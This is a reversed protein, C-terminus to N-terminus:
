TTRRCASCASPPTSSWRGSALLHLHDLDRGPQCGQVGAPRDAALGAPSVPRLLSILPSFMRSFFEFRGIICLGAPIGVLAALGFGSPWGSCASMLINWGIGQDNPGKSYFPIPSSREGGRRLDQGPQPLQHQEDDALAWVGVLLAMGLVPPLVARM